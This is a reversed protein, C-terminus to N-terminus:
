KNPYLGLGPNPRRREEPVIPPSGKTGEGNHEITCRVLAIYWFIEISGPTSRRGAEASSRLLPSPLRPVGPATFFLFNLGSRRLTLSAAYASLYPRPGYRLPAGLRPPRTNKQTLPIKFCHPIERWANHWGQRPECKNKHGIGPTRAGIPSVRFRGKRPKLKRNIACYM